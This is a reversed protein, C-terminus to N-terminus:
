SSSPTQPQVFEVYCADCLGIESDAIPEWWPDGDEIRKTCIFCHDHDWGGPELRCKSQNYEQGHYPWSAFWGEENPELAVLCPGSHFVTNVYRYKRAVDFLRQRDAMADEDPDSM